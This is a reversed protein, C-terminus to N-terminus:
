RGLFRRLRRFFGGEHLRCPGRPETGSVFTEELWRPCHGTVVGGSEPCIIVSVVGPPPTFDRGPTAARVERFVRAWIPLAAASGSLGVAKRRDFGVWVGVAREPDYGVFWADRYDDTGTKGAV